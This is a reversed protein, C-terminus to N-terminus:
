LCRTTLVNDVISTIQCSASSLMSQITNLGKRSCDVRLPLNRNEIVDEAPQIRSCLLVYEIFYKARISQKPLLPSSDDQRSM